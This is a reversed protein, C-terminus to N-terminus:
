LSPAELSQRGLSQLGLRLINIAANQDRDMVLGCHPCRHTRTSLRKKVLVGCKSCMQSTNKPDVLILKSGAWEAKNQTIRVLMGWSVDGISKALYRNKLLNKIKLAEFCIIGYQDVLKRSIQHIFNTRKNAIREHIREVIKLAKKREPTGKECKSHKRQAKGLNKEEVRFFRPNEIKEGNSLTVFSELGVDVGLVKGDIFPPIVPDIEVSFCIFWKGTSHRRVTVTKVAGEIPRHLKVKVNGIKSLYVTDESISFGKQPYTFSDYRGKGRFRPYGPSKEARIRRFFGKFALDVRMQCNQLVQSFVQKLEPREKKWQTLHNSTEFYSISIQDQEWMNKRLALTDNYIKRCLELTTNLKTGQANTPYLRYRFTKLM